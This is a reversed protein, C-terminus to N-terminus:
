TTAERAPPCLGPEHLGDCSATYTHQAPGQYGTPHFAVTPPQEEQPPPDATGSHTVELDVTVQLGYGLLGPRPPSSDDTTM